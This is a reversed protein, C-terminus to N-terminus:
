TFALFHKALRVNFYFSINETKM